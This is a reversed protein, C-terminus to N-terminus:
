ERRIHSTEGEEWIAAGSLVRSSYSPMHKKGDKIIMNTIQNAYVIITRMLANEYMRMATRQESEDREVMTEGAGSELLSAWGM